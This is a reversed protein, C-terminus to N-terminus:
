AFCFRRAVHKCPDPFGRFSIARPSWVYSINGSLRAGTAATSRSRKGEPMRYISTDPFVSGGQYIGVRILFAGFGLPMPRSSTVPIELCGREMERHRDTRKEMTTTYNSTDRSVAGIQYISVRILVPGFGLSMPLCSMAAIELCDLEM